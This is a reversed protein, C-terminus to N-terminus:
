WGNRCAWCKFKPSNIADPCFQGCKSCAVGYEVIKPKNSKKNELEFNTTLTYSSIPFWTGSEDDADRVIVTFGGPVPKIGVVKIRANPSVWIQDVAITTSHSPM